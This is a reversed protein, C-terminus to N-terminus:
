SIRSTKSTGVAGPRLAHGRRGNRVKTLWVPGLGQAWRGLGEGVVVGSEHCWL